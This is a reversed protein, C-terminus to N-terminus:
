IIFVQLSAQKNKTSIYPPDSFLHNETKERPLFIFSLTFSKESIGVAHETFQHQFYSKEQLDSQNEYHENSCCSKHKFTQQESSTHKKQCCSFVNQPPADMCSASNGFFAISEHNGQCFHFDIAYAFTANSLLVLMLLGLLGKKTYRFIWKM